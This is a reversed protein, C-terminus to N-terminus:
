ATLTSGAITATGKGAHARIYRLAAQGPALESGSVMSALTDILHHKAYEVTEAPLAKTGAAAMYASLATMEPGPTQALARLPNIALGIGTTASLRLVNRRNM